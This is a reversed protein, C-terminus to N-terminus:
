KKETVTVTRTFKERGTLFSQPQPPGFTTVTITVDTVLTSTSPSVLGLDIKLQLIEKEMSEFEAGGTALHQIQGRLLELREMKANRDDM